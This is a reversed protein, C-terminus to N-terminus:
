IYLTEWLGPLDDSDPILVVKALEHMSVKEM